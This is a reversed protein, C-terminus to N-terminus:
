STSLTIEIVEQIETGELGNKEFLNPSITHSHIPFYLASTDERKRYESWVMQEYTEEIKSVYEKM